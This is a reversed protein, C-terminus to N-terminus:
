GGEEIVPWIDITMSSNLDLEKILVGLLMESIRDANLVVRQKGDYSTISIRVNYEM